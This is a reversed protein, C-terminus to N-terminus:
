HEAADAEAKTQHVTGPEHDPPGYITYLRLPGSGTNRFNHRTGAPVFTLDGATVPGTRGELVAEGEGEVFVLTQDHEEHVQEGIEEGPHLTMLVVQTHEGTLVERRFADNKKALDVIDITEATTALM